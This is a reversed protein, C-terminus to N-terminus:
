DACFPVDWAVLDAFASMTMAFLACLARRLLGAPPGSLSDERRNPMGRRGPTYNLHGNGLRVCAPGGHGSRGGSTDLDAAVGFIRDQDGARLVDDDLGFLHEDVGGLGRLDLAAVGGPHQADQGDQGRRDVVGGGRLVGRRGQVELLLPVFQGLPNPFAAGGDEQGTDDRGRQVRQPASEGRASAWSM